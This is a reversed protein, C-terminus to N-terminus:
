GGTSKMHPGSGSDGPTGQVEKIPHLTSDDHRQGCGLDAGGILVHWIFSISVLAKQRGGNYVQLMHYM